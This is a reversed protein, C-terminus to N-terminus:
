RSDHTLSKTRVSSLSITNIRIQMMMEYLRPISKYAKDNMIAHLYIERALCVLPIDALKERIM